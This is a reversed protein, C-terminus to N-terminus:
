PATHVVAGLGPRRPAGGVLAAYAERASAGGEALARAVAAAVAPAAFSTGSWRAYAPAGDLSVFASHVDEGIACADVWPGHNSFHAPEDGAADLAGVAVVGPLAAPWFPRASGDNGAAAVVLGPLRDIEQALAAPAADDFSHCGLSLNVVEVAPLRRLAAILDLEDCVGDSGLLRVIELRASPALRALVGAVFTGHGALVDLREDRDADLVEIRDATVEEFWPRDLFWPHRAIGTDLVAVAVPRASRAPAPPSPPAAALPVPRDAPGGRFRPTAQMLHVPAVADGADALLSPVSAGTGTSVPLRWVGPVVPEASGVWRALTGPVTGGGRLMLADARILAEPASTAVARHRALLLGLVEELRGDGDM